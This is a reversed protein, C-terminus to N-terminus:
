DAGPGPTGAPPAPPEDPEPIPREVPAGHEDRPARALAGRALALSLAVLAPALAAYLAEAGEFLLGVPALLGALGFVVAAFRHTARWAAPSALTARTRIGLPSGPEMFALAPGFGLLLLSIAVPVGRGLSELMGVAVALIAAHLGFLFVVLWLVLLDAMASTRGARALVKRLGVLALIQLAPVGLFVAALKGASATTHQPLRETHVWASLMLGAWIVVAPLGWRTGVTSVAESM